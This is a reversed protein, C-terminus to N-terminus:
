QVLKATRLGYDVQNLSGEGEALTKVFRGTIEISGADRVDDVLFAAFGVVTVPKHGNLQDYHVVPLKLLRPCDPQFHEHTCNHTCKAIRQSIGEITKQKKVGTLTDIEYSVKIIGEYGNALYYSFDKAGASNPFDLAGFNGPGFDADKSRLTYPQGFVLPQTDPIFLPAAGYVSTIPMVQATAQSQLQLSSFGWIKGLVYEVTKSAIVQVGVYQSSDLDPVLKVEVQNVQLGNAQAYSQAIQSALAPNEPLEQVGALAAADAANALKSKNFAVLGFDTVLALAGILVTMALSVLVVALGQEDKLLKQALLKIKM